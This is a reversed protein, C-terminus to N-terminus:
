SKSALLQEAQQKTQQDLERKRALTTFSQVQKGSKDYLQHWAAVEALDGNDLADRLRDLFMGQLEMTDVALSNLMALKPDKEALASSKCELTRRRQHLDQDSEQQSPREVPSGGQTLDAGPSETSTNLASSEASEAATGSEAAEEDTASEVEPLEATPPTDDADSGATENEGADPLPPPAEVDPSAAELETEYGMLKALNIMAEKNM